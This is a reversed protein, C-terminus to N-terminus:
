VHLQGWDRFQGMQEKAKEKKSRDFSFKMLNMNIDVFEVAVSQLNDSFLNTQM